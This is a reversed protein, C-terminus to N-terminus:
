VLELLWLVGAADEVFDDALPSLAHELPGDFFFDSGVDLDELVQAIFLTVAEDHAITVLGLPLDEGPSAGERDLLGTHMVASCAM